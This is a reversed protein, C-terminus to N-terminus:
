YLPANRRAMDMVTRMTKLDTKGPLYAYLSGDKNVIFTTPYSNVGFLEWSVRAGEDMLVKIDIDNKTLFGNVTEYPEDVNVALVVADGAEALEKDLENFDPMEEVCYKCWVAWFNLVVIKGRYDSLSVENGELDKLTFDPVMIIEDDADTGPANSDEAGTDESAGNGANGAQGSESGTSDNDAAPADTNSGTGTLTDPVPAQVIIQSKYKDYVVYAASFILVLVAIWIILSKYKTM